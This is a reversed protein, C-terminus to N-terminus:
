AALKEEGMLIQEFLLFSEKIFKRTTEKSNSAYFGKYTDDPFYLKMLTEAFEDTMIEVELVYEEHERLAKLTKPPEANFFNRYRGDKHDIFHALEHFFTCWFIEKSDFDLIITMTKTRPCYEGTINRNNHSSKVNIKNKNLGFTQAIVCATRLTQEWDLQNIKMLKKGQSIGM